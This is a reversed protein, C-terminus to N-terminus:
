KIATHIAAAGFFLRQFIVARFGARELLRSLEEAGYFRPITSSLYAYGAKSGSLSYGVPKVLARIYLRFFKRVPSLRPQSTELNVFRGGPRLVRRFEGFTDRLIDRSLNINRTAFSIIILDFRDSPFPLYKVDALVFSVYPLPKQGAKDLMAPNFDLAIINTGAPALRALNQAMEGTGSCVDLWIGGGSKAAVRAAKKRWRRDMGLTLVHNVREYTAAVESFIKQLNKQAMSFIIIERFLPM